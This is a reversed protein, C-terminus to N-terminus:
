RVASRPRFYRPDLCRAGNESLSTVCGSSSIQFAAQRVRRAAILVANSVVNVSVVGFLQFYQMRERLSEIRFVLGVVTTVFSTVEASTLLRMPRM